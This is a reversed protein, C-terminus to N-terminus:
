FNDIFIKKDIIQLSFRFVFVCVCVIFVLSSQETFPSSSKNINTNLIPDNPPTNNNNHDKNGRQLRTIPPRSPRTPRDRVTNNNDHISASMSTDNKGSTDSM